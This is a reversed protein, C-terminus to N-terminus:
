VRCYYTFGTQLVKISHDLNASVVFNVGDEIQMSGSSVLILVPVGVVGRLLCKEPLVLMKLIPGDPQPFNNGFTVLVVRPDSAIIRKILRGIRRSHQEVRKVLTHYSCNPCNVGVM